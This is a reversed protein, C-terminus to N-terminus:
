SRAVDEPGIAEVEVVTDAYETPGASDDDSPLDIVVVAHGHRRLEADVLHWYWGSHSAGHILVYTAM